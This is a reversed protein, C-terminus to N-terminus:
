RAGGAKKAAALPESVDLYRYYSFVKPGEPTTAVGSIFSTVTGPNSGIGSRTGSIFIDKVDPDLQFAHADMLFSGSWADITLDDVRGTGGVVMAKVELQQNYYDFTADWYSVNILSEAGFNLGSVASKSEGQGRRQQLKGRLEQIKALNEKNPKTAM